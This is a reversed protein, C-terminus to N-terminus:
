SLPRELTKTEEQDTNKLKLDEDMVLNMAREALFSAEWTNKDAGPWHKQTETLIINQVAHQSNM